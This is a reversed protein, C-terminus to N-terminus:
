IKACAVTPDQHSTAPLTGAGIVLVILDNSSFKTEQRRNEECTGHDAKNNRLADVKWLILCLIALPDSRM